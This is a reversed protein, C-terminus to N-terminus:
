AWAQSIIKKMSMRRLVLVAVTMAGLGLFLFAFNFDSSLLDFGQSPMVRVCYLGAAGYALVYSSSELATPVSVLGSM